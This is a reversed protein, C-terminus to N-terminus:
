IVEGHRERRQAASVLGCTKANADACLPYWIGGLRGATCRLRKKALRWAGFFYCFNTCCTPARTSEEMVKAKRKCTQKRRHQQAPSHFSAPTHTTCTHIHMYTDRGAGLFTGFLVTTVTSMGIIAPQQFCGAGQPCGSSNALAQAL